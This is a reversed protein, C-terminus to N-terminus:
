RMWITLLLTLTTKHQQIRRVLITLNSNEWNWRLRSYVSMQGAPLRREQPGVLQKVRRPMLEDIIRELQSFTLTCSALTIALQTADTAMAGLPTMENRKAIRTRLRKLAYEFDRVEALIEQAIDPMNTYTSILSDINKYVTAAALILGVVSAAVEMDIASRSINHFVQTRFGEERNDRTM